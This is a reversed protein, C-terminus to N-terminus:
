EELLKQKLIAAIHENYDGDITRPPIWRAYDFDPYNLPEDLCKHFVYFDHVKAANEASPYFGLHLRRPSRHGVPRQWACSVHVHVGRFDVAANIQPGDGYDGVWLKRHTESVRDPWSVGLRVESTPNFQALAEMLERVTM